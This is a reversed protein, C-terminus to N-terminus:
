WSVFIQYDDTGAIKWLSYERYLAFSGFGAVEVQVTNSWSNFAGADLWEPNFNEWDIITEWDDNQVFHRQAYHMVLGVPDLYTGDAQMRQNIDIGGESIITGTYLSDLQNGFQDLVRVSMTTMYLTVLEKMGAPINEILPSDNPGTARNVPTIIAAIEQSYNPSVSAPVVVMVTVAAIQFQGSKILLLYPNPNDPSGTPIIGGSVNFTVTGAEANPRIESVTPPFLGPVQDVFVFHITNVLAKDELILVV